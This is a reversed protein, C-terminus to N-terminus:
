SILRVCLMAKTQANPSILGKITRVTNVVIRSTTQQIHRRFRFAQRGCCMVDSNRFVSIMITMETLVEFVCSRHVTGVHSYNSM